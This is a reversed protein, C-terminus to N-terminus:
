WDSLEEKEAESKRLLDRKALDQQRWHEQADVAEKERALALRERALAEQQAQRSADSMKKSQEVAIKLRRVESATVEEGSELREKIETKVEDPASLYQLAASISLASSRAKPLRDQNKAVRMYDQRQREKLVCHKECELEFEGHPLREKLEILDLGSEVAKTLMVSMHAQIEVERMNIYEFLDKIPALETSM